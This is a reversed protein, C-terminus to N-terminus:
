ELAQPRAEAVIEIAEEAAVEDLLEDDLQVILTMRERQVITVSETVGSGAFANWNTEGGGTMGHELRGDGRDAAVFGGRVEFHVDAGAAADLQVAGEDGCVM